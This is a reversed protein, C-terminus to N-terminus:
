YLTLATTKIGTIKFLTPAEVLASFNWAPIM